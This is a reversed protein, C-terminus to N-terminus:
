FKLIINDFIRNLLNIGASTVSYKYARKIGRRVLYGQDQLQKMEKHLTLRSSAYAYKFANNYFEAGLNEAYSFYLLAYWKPMSLGYDMAIRKKNSEYNILFALITQINKKNKVFSLNRKHNANAILEKVLTYINSCSAQNMYLLSMMLEKDSVVFASHARMTELLEINRLKGRQADAARGFERMNLANDAKDIVITINHKFVVSLIWMKEQFSLRDLNALAGSRFIKFSLDKPILASQEPTIKNMKEVFFHNFNENYIDIQKISKKQVQIM